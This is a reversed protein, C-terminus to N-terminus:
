RGVNCYPRRHSSGVLTVGSVAKAVSQGASTLAAAPVAGVGLVASAVAMPIILSHM